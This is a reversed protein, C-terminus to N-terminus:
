YHEKSEAQIAGTYGSSIELGGSPGSNKGREVTHMTLYASKSRLNRAVYAKLLLVCVDRLTIIAFLLLLLM